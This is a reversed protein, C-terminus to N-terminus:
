CDGKPNVWEIFINEACHSCEIRTPLEKIWENVQFEKQCRSCRVQRIMLHETKQYQFFGVIPALLLFLPVLVFHLVPVFIAALALGFLFFFSKGARKVREKQSLQQLELNTHVLDLQDPGCYAFRLQSM